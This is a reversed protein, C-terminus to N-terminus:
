ELIGSELTNIISRIDPWKRIIHRMLQEDTYADSQNEESLIMKLRDHLNFRLSRNTDIWDFNISICRSVIANGTKNSTLNGVNKNTTLIFRAGDQYTEIIPRLAGIADVKFNDLEDILIIKNERSGRIFNSCSRVFEIGSLPSNINTHFNFDDLNNLISRALMLASSTKGNGPDGWFILHQINGTDLYKRFLAKIDDPLIAEDVTKPAYKNVWLEDM